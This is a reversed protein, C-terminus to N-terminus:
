DPIIIEGKPGLVASIAMGDALAICAWFVLELAILPLPEGFLNFPTFFEWFLFTMLFVLASFRLGRAVVGRPWAPSIWTFLYAHLIGFLLMGLLIPAPDTMVLPLPELRMWVEVLKPSQAPSTILIGDGHLGFGLLRFTLFMAANMATGGAVGAAIIRTHAHRLM